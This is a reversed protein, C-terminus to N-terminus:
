HEYSILWRELGTTEEVGVQTLQEERRSEELFRAYQPKKEV